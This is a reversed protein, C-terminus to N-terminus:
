SFNTESHYSGNGALENLVINVSENLVEEDKWDACGDYKLFKAYYWDSFGKHSNVLLGVLDNTEHITSKLDGEIYLKM